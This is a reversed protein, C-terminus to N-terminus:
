KIYEKKEFMRWFIGKLQRQLKLEYNKGSEGTDWIADETMFVNNERVDEIMEPEQVSEKRSDITAGMREYDCGCFDKYVGQQREM